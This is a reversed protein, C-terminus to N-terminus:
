EDRHASTEDVRSTHDSRDACEARVGFRRDAVQAGLLLRDDEGFDLALPEARDALGMVVASPSFRRRDPRRRLGIVADSVEKSMHEALGLHLLQPAAPVRRARPGTALRVERVGLAQHDEACGGAEGLVDRRQVRQELVAAIQAGEESGVVVLRPQVARRRQGAHQIPDSRRRQAV